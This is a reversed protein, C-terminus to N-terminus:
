RDHWAKTSDSRSYGHQYQEGTYVSSIGGRRSQPGTPYNTPQPQSEVPGLERMNDDELTRAIYGQQTAITQHARFLEAKLAAIDQDRVAAQRGMKLLAEASEARVAKLDANAKEANERWVTMQHRVGSLEVELGADNLEDKTM